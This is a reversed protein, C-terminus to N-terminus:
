KVYVYGGYTAYRSAADPLLVYAIIFLSWVLVPEISTNTGIAGLYAM